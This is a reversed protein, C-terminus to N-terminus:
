LDPFLFIRDDIVDSVSAAYILHYIIVYERSYISENSYIYM